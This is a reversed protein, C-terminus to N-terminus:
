GQGTFNALKQCEGVKSKRRVCVLRSRVCEEGGQRRECMIIGELETFLIAPIPTPEFRRSSFEMVVWYPDITGPMVFM